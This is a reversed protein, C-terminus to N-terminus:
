ELKSKRFQPNLYKLIGSIFGMIMPLPDKFSGDQYSIDKGFFNFWSPRFSFREKSFVFWLVDLGFFRIKKNTYYFYNLRENGLLDNVIIEPFNIGSVYAAHISAPIRPNIEIIKLNGSKDEMVDFDAFGEWELAELVKKCITFLEKNEITECYSSTGGKLPFYRMIKIIVSENVHRNKDRYLMVNYYVGTHDIYEQLTLPGYVEQVKPYIDILEKVSKVITIGRAGSSINPKILAPFGVCASCEEINGDSLSMTKPHPFSNLRCITMLKEKDHAIIFKDYEPIACKINIKEEIELKYKSLFEASDNYMPIIVCHENKILFKILFDLYAKEDSSIKKNIVVKKNIYRSAYGASIKSNIFANVNYGVERLSRAVSISQVTHGDLLLISKNKM